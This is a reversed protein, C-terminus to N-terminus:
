ELLVFVRQEVAVLADHLVPQVSQGADRADADFTSERAFSTLRVVTRDHV